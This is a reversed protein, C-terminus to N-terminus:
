QIMKSVGSKEYAKQICVMAESFQAQRSSMDEGHILWHDEKFSIAQRMCPESVPLNMMPKTPEPPHFEKEVIPSAPDKERSSSTIISCFVFEIPPSQSLAILGYALLSTLFGLPLLIFKAGTTYKTM